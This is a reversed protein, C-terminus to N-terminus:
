QREFSGSLHAAPSEEMAYHCLKRLSLCLNNLEAILKEANVKVACGM